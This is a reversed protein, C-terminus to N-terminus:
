IYLPETEGSGGVGDGVGAVGYITLPVAIEFTEVMLREKAILVTGREDSGLEELLESEGDGGLGVIKREVM